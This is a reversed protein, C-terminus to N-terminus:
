KQKVFGTCRLQRPDVSWSKEAPNWLLMNQTENLYAAGDESMRFRGNGAAAIKLYYVYWRKANARDSTVERQYRPAGVLTVGQIDFGECKDKPWAASFLRQAEGTAPADLDSLATSELLRVRELEWRDGVLRYEVSLRDRNRTGDAREILASGYYRIAILNAERREPGSVDQVKDSPQQRAYDDIIANRAADWGPAQQSLATGSGIMMALGICAALWKGWSRRRVDGRHGIRAHFQKFQDSKDM